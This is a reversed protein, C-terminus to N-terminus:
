CDKSAFELFLEIAGEADRLDLLSAAIMGDRDFYRSLTARFAQGNEESRIIRRESYAKYSDIEVRSADGIYNVGLLVPNSLQVLTLDRTISARLDFLSVVGNFEERSYNLCVPQSYIKKANIPQDKPNM